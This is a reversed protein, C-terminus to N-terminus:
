PFWRDRTCTATPRPKGVLLSKGTYGGAAMQHIKSSKNGASIRLSSAMAQTITNVLFEPELLKALKKNQAELSSIM